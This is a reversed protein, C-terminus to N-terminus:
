SSLIDGRRWMGDAMLAAYFFARTNTPDRTFVAKLQNVGGIFDGSRMLSEGLLEQVKYLRAVM